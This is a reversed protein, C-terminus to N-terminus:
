SPEELALDVCCSGIRKGASHFQTTVTATSNTAERKRALFELTEGPAIFSRLKVDSIVRAKWEAGNSPPALADMLAAAFDLNAHTLLTGPFVSRRPFHDEFFDAKEPIRLSTQMSEDPNLKTSEFALYQVGTFRGPTAGEGQLFAFRQRIVEPDDFEGLPMMPGVCHHLRVVPRGDVSAIGGYDVAEKDVSELNAVLELTQGPLADSLLEVRGALGAVPRHTFDVFAMAAWAALQGIAEAVLSNSFEVISNPVTYRGAIHRGEQISTIRDVFTFARFHPDM